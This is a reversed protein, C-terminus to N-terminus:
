TLSNAVSHADEMGFGTLCVTPAGDPADDQNRDPYFLLYPVNLVILGGHGFAIGTALNLGNVFDHAQDARGDGDTDELITIRDAGKPGHLPSEPICDYTTRSWRDVAARKLGAPNPYQLYQIAWLRGHDDFEICVPQAILPEGAVLQVQLDEPLTMHRPAEDPSFGQGRLIFAAFLLDIAAWRSLNNPPSCRNM